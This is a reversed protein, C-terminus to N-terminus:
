KLLDDENLIRWKNTREAQKISNEFTNKHLAVFLGEKPRSMAVYVIREYVARINQNDIKFHKKLFVREEDSDPDLYLLGSDISQGKLDHITKAIIEENHSPVFGRKKTERMIEDFISNTINVFRDSGLKKICRNMGEKLKETSEVTERLFNHLRQKLENFAEVHELALEKRISPVNSDTKESIVKLIKELSEVPVNATKKSITPKLIVGLKKYYSKRHIMIPTDKMKKSQSTQELAARFMEPVREPSSYILITPKTSKLPKACEMKGFGFDELVDAIEEGFRLTYNLKKLQAFGSTKILQSDYNIHQNKDGIYQIVNTATDFLSQLLNDAEKSVDQYEDMFVYKFRERIRQKNREKRLFVESFLFPTSYDLHGKKLMQKRIELYGKEYKSYQNVGNKGKYILESCNDFTLTGKLFYDCIKRANKQFDENPNNMWQYKRKMKQLLQEVTVKYFQYDRSYKKMKLYPTMGFQIFFQHITGLFHPHQVQEIGVRKLVKRIEEVAANTHTIVCVGEKEGAKELKRIMLALKMGLATTKGSGPGAEIVSTENFYIFKKQLENFKGIGLIMKEFNDYVQEDFFDYTVETTEMKSEEKM